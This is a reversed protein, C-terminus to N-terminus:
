SSSSWSTASSSGPSSRRTSASRFGLRISEPRLRIEHGYRPVRRRLIPDEASGEELAGVVDHLDGVVDVAASDLVDVGFFSADREATGCGLDLKLLRERRLASHKDVIAASM